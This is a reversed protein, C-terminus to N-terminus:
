KTVRGGALMAPDIAILVLTDSPSLGLKACLAESPANGARIGTFCDTYGFAENMRLMAMAGLVLAIGEGRRSDDTALM